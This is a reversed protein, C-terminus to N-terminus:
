VRIAFAADPLRRRLGAVVDVGDWHLNPALAAVGAASEVLGPVAVTLGVPIAGIAATADIAAGVLCAVEDLTRDAGLAPVDHAVMREFIVEGRLDLVICALFDVNLEVGIGCAGCGALEVIVGPRGVSGAREIRGETVLGRAALETVLSPVAAKNVGPDQALRARSRPGATRLHRLVLGLNGRRGTAQDAPGAPPHAAVPAPSNSM